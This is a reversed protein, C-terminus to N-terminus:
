SKNRNLSIKYYSKNRYMSYLEEDSIHNIDFNDFMSKLYLVFAFFYERKSYTSLLYEYKKNNYTVDLDFNDDSNKTKKLIFDIENFNYKIMDTNPKSNLVSIMLGTPSVIIKDIKKIRKSSLFILIALVVVIGSVILLFSEFSININALELFGGKFVFIAGIFWIIICWMIGITKVMKARKEQQLNEYDWASFEIANNYKFKDDYDNFYKRINTIIQKKDEDSFFDNLM